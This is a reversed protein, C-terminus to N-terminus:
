ILRQYQSLELKWVPVGCFRKGEPCLPRVGADRRLGCPPMLWRGIRPHVDRVAQVEQISADWIEDQANYCLRSTWKHHFAALDGSEEFRVPFANPLLYMAVQPTVGDDLLADIAAWTEEMTRMFRAHAEPTQRLLEPVVVDPAGGVYHTHLIPRSGPTLRHRQDQSDASHSLKKQFTYHPHVLARTLKGLSTLNLAGGLYPNEAPSLVRRIADDDSLEAATVGLTSRVARALTAEARASCDVLRARKGGLEADFADRFARASASVDVRDLAALAKFEHTEELPIPDEIRAFFLPDHANVEAVMAAVVARAEAPVDICHSLRNYRHLTIGSITHYLHALTGVPLAYRAVEQAKKKIAGASEEARKKRAPFIRFYEAAAPPTLLAVLDLYCAMQAEVTARYRAAARPPLQPMLVREAKVAVYRQSVQESNYFPHAHLFAWILQRSVNDLIFQFTAHQLTTHHGAEYTSQAIADRLRRAREDRTVDGPTIVRSAYCTRATAVANNYPEAFANVLKVVPVASEFPPAARMSVM